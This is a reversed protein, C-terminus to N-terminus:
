RADGARGVVETPRPVQRQAVGGATRTGGDAPSRALPPPGPEADGAALRTLRYRLILGVMAVGVRVARSMQGTIKSQGVRACYNLPVQVVPIRHLLALIMMEPSFHSGGVTFEGQLRELAERRLLRMTCGVDTLCSGNFLVQLVKAVAWNGWRLSWRMNAGERICAQSTRTGLVIPFDDAYALLRLIDKGLFTGDPEALIILDGTAERLARRCAYGYGQRPERVVRAGAAAAREATGDASNNDAVVVEDVLGGLFFEEVARGIQGAENYAPFVVSLRKDQWM